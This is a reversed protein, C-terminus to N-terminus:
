TQELMAVPDECPFLENITNMVLQRDCPLIEKTIPDIHRNSCCFCKSDQIRANALQIHFGYMERVIGRMMHVFLSLSVLSLLIFCMSVFFTTGNGMDLGSSSTM